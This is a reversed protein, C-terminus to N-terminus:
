MCMFSHKQTHTHTHTHTHYNQCKRQSHIGEEGYSTIGAIDVLGNWQPLWIRWWETSFCLASLHVWMERNRTDAKWASFSGRFALQFEWTMIAGRRIRRPYHQRQTSLQHLHQESSINRNVASTLMLTNHDDSQLIFLFIWSYVYACVSSMLDILM